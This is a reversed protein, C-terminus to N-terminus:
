FVFLGVHLCYKREPLDLALWIKRLNSSPVGVTLQVHFTSFWIGKGRSLHAPYRPQLPCTKGAPNSLRDWPETTWSRDVVISRDIGTLPISPSLFYFTFPLSNNIHIAFYLSTFPQYSLHFIFLYIFLSTFHFPSPKKLATFPNM